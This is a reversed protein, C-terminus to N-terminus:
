YSSSKRAFDKFIEMLIDLDFVNNKFKGSTLKLETPVRDFIISILVLIEVGSDASNRM